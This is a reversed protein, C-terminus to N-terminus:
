IDGPAYGSVRPSVEVALYTTPMIRVRGGLGVVFTDRDIGTGSASNHVWLPDVYLAASDALTRSISAGIAPAYDRRFNNGGEVSLLASVGVPSAGQHVADYKGSFQITRDFNTRAAIAELHKTIGFRYEFSITAG